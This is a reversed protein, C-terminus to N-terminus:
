LNFENIITEIILEPSDSIDLHLGYDPIELTDFQSQLLAASMFHNTRSNLRSQILDQSGKLLVWKVKGILDKQLIDRYSQKLASCAIIAGEANSQKIAHLNLDILWQKRDEDVLAIGASMKDINAQPHFDDGDFFPINVKKALLSGITSKGCGSVGIIFIIPRM